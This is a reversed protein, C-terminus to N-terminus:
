NRRSWLYSSVLCQRMASAGQPLLVCRVLNFRRFFRLVDWETM